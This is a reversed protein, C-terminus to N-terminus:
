TLQLMELGLHDDSGRVGLRCMLRADPDDCGQGPSIASREWWRGQGWRLWGLMGEMGLEHNPVVMDPSGDFCPRDTHGMVVQILM